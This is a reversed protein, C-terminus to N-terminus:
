KCVGFLSPFDPTLGMRHLAGPILNQVLVDAKGLIMELVARDRDSKLDLVASEKGRNPWAFYASTGKVANDYNRATEGEPREIKIVRAGADALRVTCM